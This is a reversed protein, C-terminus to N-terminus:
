TGSCKSCQSAELEIIRVMLWYVLNDGLLDREWPEGNRLASLKGHDNIITYKGNGVEIREIAM